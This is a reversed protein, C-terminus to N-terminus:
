KDTSANQHTRRELLGVARRLQKQLQCQLLRGAILSTLIAARNGAQESGVRNARLCGQREIRTLTEAVPQRHFHAWLGEDFAADVTEFLGKIGGLLMAERQSRQMPIRRGAEFFMHRCETELQDVCGLVQDESVGTLHLRMGCNVDNGIAQPVVFGSTELITGVPIGQAKHFDPTVAVRSIRPPTSFSEPSAKAFAEVTQQLKLMRQLEDIAIQEVPVNENAFLSVDVDFANEITLRNENVRRLNPKPM